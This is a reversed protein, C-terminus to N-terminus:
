KIEQGSDLLEQFLVFFIEFIPSAEDEPFQEGFCLKNLPDHGDAWANNYPDYEWKIAADKLALDLDPAERKQKNINLLYPEYCGPFFALPKQLGAVYLEILIQLINKPKLCGNLAFINDKNCYKLAYSPEEVVLALYHILSNLKHKFSATGVHYPVYTSAFLKKINCHLHIDVEPTKFELTFDLSEEVQDDQCEILREAISLADEYISEFCQVGNEGYPLLGDAQTRELLIDHASDADEVISEIFQEKLKYQELKNAQEFAETEALEALEEKWLTTGVQTKLFAKAPAKFFSAFEDLTVNLIGNSDLLETALSLKEPCFDQTRIKEENALSQAASFHLPSFSHLQKEQDNARTFYRASFAQLAQEKVKFGNVSVNLYEIFEALVVSPPIESNDKENLGVYSAYFYQRASLLSELFLYRDDLSMSRDGQKWNMKMLDFGSRQNLRPFQGENLGLMCIVKVPISRMPLLSCFTIGKSIFGHTSSEEELSSSLTKLVIDFELKEELELLTGQNILKQFSQNILRYENGNDDTKEFCDELVTVLYEGWELLTKQQHKLTDHIKFLKEILSKFSGLIIGDSGIPCTLSDNYILEDDFAYGAMLRDFGFKWSNQEFEPLGMEKREQADQAWRIRSKEIWERILPINDPELQFSQLLDPSEILELIDNASLRTKPLHLLKLLSNVLAQASAMQDAISFEIPNNNQQSFINQIHPAYDQINPAMVVIDHPRIQQEAPGQHSAKLISLLYDHLVELERRPNHCSNITISTDDKLTSDFDSSLNLIGNQIDNLNSALNQVPYHDDADFSTKDILLNLFDRGLLGWSKLLAHALDPIEDEQARQLSIESNLYLTHSIKDLATFREQELDGWYEQCPSFHFLTVPTHESLTEFFSIFVPPMNTIGFISINKPLELDISRPPGMKIFDHLATQFSKSESKCLEQWIMKQWNEHDRDLYSEQNETNVWTYNKNQAWANLWEHRYIMYEDFLSALQEALQHRRTVQENVYEKLIDFRKEIKPLIQFIRWKLSERDWIDDEKSYGCRVLITSIFTRIFPYDIRTAINNEKAVELNIWKAMGRSQIIVLDNKQGFLQAPTSKDHYLSKALREVLIELKNSAFVYM